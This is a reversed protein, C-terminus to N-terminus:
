TMTYDGIVKGGQCVEDPMVCLTLASELKLGNAQLLIFRGAVQSIAPLNIKNLGKKLWIMM